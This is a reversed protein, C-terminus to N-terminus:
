AVGKRAVPEGGHADYRETVYAARNGVTRANDKGDQLARRLAESSLARRQEWMAGNRTMEQLGLFRCLDGWLDDQPRDAEDKAFHEPSDKGRSTARTKSDPPPSLVVMLGPLSEPQPNGKEKRNGEKGKGETSPDPSPTRPAVRSPDSSATPSPDSSPDSREPTGTRRAQGSRLGGERGAKRSSRVQEEKDVPYFAVVLTDGDMTLLRSANLVERRTVGCVQQWQRDRWAAAGAIRGGNEQETCFALVNLWTARETPDSGVYAPSRLTRIELNIWNM